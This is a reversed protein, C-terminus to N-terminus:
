RKNLTNYARVYLSIFYPSVLVGYDLCMCQIRMLVNIDESCIKNDNKLLQRLYDCVDRIRDVLIDELGTMHECMVKGYSINHSRKLMFFCIAGLKHSGDKFSFSNFTIKIFTKHEGFKTVFMWFNAKILRRYVYFSCYTKENNEKKYYKVQEYFDTDEHTCLESNDCHLPRRMCERGYRIVFM